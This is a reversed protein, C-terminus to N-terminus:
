AAAIQASTPKDKIAPQWGVVAVRVKEADGNPHRYCHWGEEDREFLDGDWGVFGSWADQVSQGLYVGTTGHYESSTEVWASADALLVDGNALAVYIVDRDHQEPGALDDPSRWM